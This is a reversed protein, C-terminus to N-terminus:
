TSSALNLTLVLTRLSNALAAATTAETSAATVVLRTTPASTGYFGAKGGARAWVAGSNAILAHANADTEADGNAYLALYGSSGAHISSRGGPNAMTLRFIGKSWGGANSSNPLEIRTLSGNDVMDTDLVTPWFIGNYAAGAEVRIQTAGNAEYDGGFVANFASGAGNFRLGTGGNSECVVGVFTNLQGNGVRIGDNTNSQYLGGHATGGNADPLTPYVKDSIYLGFRGNSTGRCRNLSWSNANVGADTGIRWGDNGMSFVAANDAGFNNCSIQIGDGTNGGQGRVVCDRIGSNNASFVFLATAMTSKKIFETAGNTNSSEASGLGELIVRKTFAVQSACLYTAGLKRSFLKGGTAPLAAHALVIAPSDDTVGDGVAGFDELALRERMKDQAGRSVAGAGAQLFSQTSISSALALAWTIATTGITIPNASTIQYYLGAQTSGDTVLVTTGKVFDLNGNADIDRTWAATSAVYIGNTATNAQNKVLVRDNAALVVGDVTQLGSLTIAGTTAARVPAKFALGSILGFRRDTSAM